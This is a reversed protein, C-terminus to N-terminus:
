FPPDFFNRLVSTDCCLSGVKSTVRMKLELKLIQLPQNGLDQDCKTPRLFGWGRFENMISEFAILIKIVEITRSLTCVLKANSGFSLRPMTLCFRLVKLNSLWNNLSHAILISPITTQVLSVGRM